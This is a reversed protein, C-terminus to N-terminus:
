SKRREAALETAGMRQQCPGRIAVAKLVLPIGPAMDESARPLLWPAHALLLNCQKGGDRKARGARQPSSREAFILSTTVWFRTM